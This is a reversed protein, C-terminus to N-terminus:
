DNKASLLLRHDLQLWGAIGHNSPLLLFVGPRFCNHKSYLTVLTSYKYIRIQGKLKSRLIDQHLKEMSKSTSSSETPLPLSSVPVGVTLLNQARELKRDVAPKRRRNAQIAYNKVQLLVVPECCSPSPSSLNFISHLATFDAFKNKNERKSREEYNFM